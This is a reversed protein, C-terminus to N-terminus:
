QAIALTAFSLKQAGASLLTHGCSELTAGTTVVDDVLLVHKGEIEQADKIDFIGEVNEWREQKSKHTQTESKRNRIVTDFSYPIDLSNSLGEALYNSQNYGRRKEKSKHLPIPLIIDWTDIIGSNLLDVGFWEGMKLGVEPQNQYKYNHLVQQTIGQKHFHLYALAYEVKIRGYFKQIFANQRNGHHRTKPMEYKCITCLLDEGKSLSQGCGACNRPYILAVLDRIWSTFGAKLGIFSINAL